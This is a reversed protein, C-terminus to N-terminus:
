FRPRAGFAWILAALAGVPARRWCCRARRPLAPESKRTLLEPLTMLVPLSTYHSAEESTQITLLRPV